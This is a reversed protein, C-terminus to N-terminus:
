LDQYLVLEEMDSIPYPFGSLSANSLSEGPSFLVFRVSPPAGMRMEKPETTHLGALTLSTCDPM